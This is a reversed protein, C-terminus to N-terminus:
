LEWKSQLHKGALYMAGTVLLFRFEMMGFEWTIFSIAATVVFLLTGLHLLFDVLLQRGFSDNM